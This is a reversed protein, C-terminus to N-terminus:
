IKKIKQAMKQPALAGERAIERKLVRKTVLPDLRM